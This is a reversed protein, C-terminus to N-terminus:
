TEFLGKKVQRGNSVFDGTAEYIVNDTFVAVVAIEKKAKRNDIPFPLNVMKEDEIMNEITVYM